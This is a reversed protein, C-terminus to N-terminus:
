KRPKFTIFGAPFNSPSDGSIPLQLADQKRWLAYSSVGEGTQGSDLVYDLFNDGLGYHLLAEHEASIDIVKVLKNSRKNKLNQAITNSQKPDRLVNRYTTRRYFAKVTINLKNAIYQALSENPNPDQILNSPMLESLM